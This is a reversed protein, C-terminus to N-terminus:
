HESGAPALWAAVLALVVVLAGVPALWTLGWRELVVGGLLASLAGGINMATLNLAASLQVSKASLSALRHLQPPMVGWATAGYILMFGFFAPGAIWHPLQVLLPLGALLAIVIGIMLLTTRKGGYRDAMRGGFHNGLMAGCGFALMVLPMMSRDLGVLDTTVPALFNFFTFTGMVLLGSSLLTMPVGPVKLVSLRERLTRSDGYINGPLRLWMTVAALIAIAGLGVYAVRWGLTNAVLAALPAGLAVAISGGMVVTSIASGRKGPAALKVATSQATSTFMGAGTALFTRAGLLLLYGPLLGFLLAMTGFLFEAGAVVTRRDVHGFLTALIPTGIGYALSYVFILWGAEAVSVGVEAAVDPMVVVILSSEVSGAFAGLALWLLRADM